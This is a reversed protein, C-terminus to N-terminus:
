CCTPRRRRRGACSGTRPSCRRQRQDVFWASGEPRGVARRLVADARAAREGRRRHGRHDGVPQRCDGPMADARCSPPAGAARRSRLSRRRRADGAMGRRPDDRDRRDGRHLRDCRGRSARGQAARPLVLPDQPGDRRLVHVPVRDGVRVPVARRGRAGDGQGPADQRHGATGRVAPRTAADRGDGRHVRPARPVPQALPRRGGQRRRRGQRRRTLGHDARTPLDHAAVPRRRDDHWAPRRGDDAVAADGRCSRTPCGSGCTSSTSRSVSWMRWWLWAAPIAMVVAIRRLSRQRRHERSTGVDADGATLRGVGAAALM